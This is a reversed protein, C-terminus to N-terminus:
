QIKNTRLSIELDRLLQTSTMSRVEKRLQYMLVCCCIHASDVILYYDNMFSRQSEILVFQGLKRTVTSCMGHM